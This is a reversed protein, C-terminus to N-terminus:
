TSQSSRPSPSSRTRSAPTSSCTGPRMSRNPRSSRRRRRAATASVLGSFKTTIREEAVMLSGLVFSVLTHHNMGRWQERDAALDIDFPNWQSEESHRYLTQPDHLHVEHTGSMGRSAQEGQHDRLRGQQPRPADREIEINALGADTLAQEFEQRTLAGAICGTWQALDKRTVEDMGPDAIVDSVAFRGGPKLVRAVEKIVRPKDGSLDIVCDGIM